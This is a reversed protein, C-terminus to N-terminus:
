ETPYPPRNWETRLAHGFRERLLKIGDETLHNSNLGLFEPQFESSISLLSEAGDDTLGNYGLELYKLGQTIESASLARVGEDGIQNAWLDLKELNTLTKTTALQEAGIQLLSNGSLDLTRLQSLRPANALALGASSPIRNVRASLETVHAMLPVNVLVPMFNAVRRLAVSCVGPAASLIEEADDILSRAKVRIHEILGRRYTAALVGFKRLEGIQEEGHTALYQEEQQRLAAVESGPQMPETLAIQTRIFAAQPDGREELWDAFILRPVDDGPNDRIEAYFAQAEDSTM